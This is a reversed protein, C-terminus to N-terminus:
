TEKPIEGMFLQTARWGHLYTAEINASMWPYVLGQSM